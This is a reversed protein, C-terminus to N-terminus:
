RCKRKVNVLLLMNKRQKVHRTTASTRTRAYESHTHIGPLPSLQSMSCTRPVSAHNPHIQAYHWSVVVSTSDTSAPIRAYRVHRCRSHRAGPLAARTHPQTAQVVGIPMPVHMLSCVFAVYQWLWLLCCAGVCSNCQM